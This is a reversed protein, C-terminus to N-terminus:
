GVTVGGDITITQGTIFRAGPSALFAAMGALDDPEMLRKVSQAEVIELELRRITEADALGRTADTITYGPAIANVTIGSGALERSLANTMAWVAGKSAVYHLFGPKGMSVVNSAVNVIAGGGRERMPAAAAACMRWTGKVNVEMARDWEADAIEEFSTLNMGGYYAANNVLADLGGFRELATEMVKTAQAKDTIDAEVCVLEGGCRANTEELSLVDTAVVQAGEACFREAYVQGIGRAAGSIVCVRGDLIGKSM